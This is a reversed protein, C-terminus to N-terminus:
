TGQLIRDYSCNWNWTPFGPFRFRTKRVKQWESSSFANPIDIEPPVIRGMVSPSFYLPNDPAFRGFILFNERAFRAFILFISKKPTQKPVNELPKWVRTLPKWLVGCCLAPAENSDMIPFTCRLMDRGQQFMTFCWSGASECNRLIVVIMMIIAATSFVCFQKMPTKPMKQSIRLFLPSSIGMGTIDLFFIALKVQNGPM